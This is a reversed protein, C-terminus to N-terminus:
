YYRCQTFRQLIYIFTILSTISGCCGASGLVTWDDLKGNNEGFHFLVFFNNCHWTNLSCLSRQVFYVFSINYM